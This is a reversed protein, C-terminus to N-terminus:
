KGERSDSLWGGRRPSLTHPRIAGEGMGKTQAPPPARRARCERAVRGGGAPLWRELPARLWMLIKCM